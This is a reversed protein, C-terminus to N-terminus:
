KRSESASQEKYFKFQKQNEAGIPNIKDLARWKIRTQKGNKWFFLDLFRSGFRIERSTYSKSISIPRGSKADVGTLVFRLSVMSRLFVAAKVESLLKQNEKLSLDIDFAILKDFFANERAKTTILRRVDNSWYLLELSARANIVASGRNAVRLSLYYRDGAHRVYVYRTPILRSYQRSIFSVFLGLFVALLLIRVVIEVSLLIRGPLDVPTVGRVSQPLLAVLCYSLWDPLKEEAFSVDYTVSQTRFYLYGFGGSLVCYAILSIIMLLAIHLVKKGM